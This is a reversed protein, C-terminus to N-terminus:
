MRFDTIAVDYAFCFNFTMKIINIVIITLICMFVMIQMYKVNLGCMSKKRWQRIDTKTTKFDDIIYLNMDLNSDDKRAAV